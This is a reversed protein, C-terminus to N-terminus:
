VLALSTCFGILLLSGLISETWIRSWPHTNPSATLHVESTWEKCSMAPQPLGAWGPHM